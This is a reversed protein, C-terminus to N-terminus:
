GCRVTGSGLDPADALEAVRVLSRPFMSVLNVTLNTGIYACESLKWGKRPGSVGIPLYPLSLLYPLGPPRHRSRSGVSIHTLMRHVRSSPCQGM